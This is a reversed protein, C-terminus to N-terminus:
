FFKHRQVRNSEKTKVIQQCRTYYDPLIEKPRKRGDLAYVSDNIKAVVQEPTDSDYITCAPLGIKMVNPVKKM